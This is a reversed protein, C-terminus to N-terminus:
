PMLSALWAEVNARDSGWPAARLALGYLRMTVAQGGINGGIHSTDQGQTAAYTGDSVGDLYFTGSSLGDMILIHDANDKVNTNAPRNGGGYTGWAGGAVQAEFQTGDSYDGATGTAAIVSYSGIQSSNIRVAAAFAYKGPLWATDYLDSSGDFEAWFKGSGSRLTARAADSPAVANFAGGGSVLNRWSGIVGDVSSSTSGGGTREVYTHQAANYVGVIDSLAAIDFPSPGGGPASGRVLGRMGPLFSM